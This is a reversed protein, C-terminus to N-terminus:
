GSRAQSLELVRHCGECLCIGFAPDMRDRADLATYPIPWHAAVLLRDTAGCRRCRHRDRNLVAARFHAQDAHSRPRHEPCGGREPSVRGCTPCTYLMPV